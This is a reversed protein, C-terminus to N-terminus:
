KQKYKINEWESHPRSQVKESGSRKEQSSILCGRSLHPVQKEMSVTLANDSTLVPAMPWVCSLCPPGDQPWIGRMALGVTAAGYPHHRKNEGLIVGRVSERSNEM